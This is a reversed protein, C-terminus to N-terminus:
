LVKGDFVTHIIAVILINALSEQASGLIANIFGLTLIFSVVGNFIKRVRAVANLDLLSVEFEDIEHTVIDGFVTRIIHCSIRYESLKATDQM